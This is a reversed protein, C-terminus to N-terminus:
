PTPPATHSLVQSDRPLGDAFLLRESTGPLRFWRSLVRAAFPGPVWSAARGWSIWPRLVTHGGDERIGIFAMCHAAASVPLSRHGCPAPGLGPGRSLRQWMHCGVRYPLLEPQLTM